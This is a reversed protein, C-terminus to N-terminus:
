AGKKSLIQTLFEGHKQSNHPTYKAYVSLTIASNKHGLMFSVWLIPEGKSIFWSAFSHRTNYIRRHAINLNKLLNKYEFNLHSLQFNFIMGGRKNKFIFDEDKAGRKQKEEKIFQALTPLLDIKRTSSPTKPTSLGNVYSVAKDINITNRELDFDGFKLALIEGTRAGCLLAIKLYLGIDGGAQLLEVIESESFPKLEEKDSVSYKKQFVPNKNINGNEVALNLVRKLEKILTKITEKKYGSNELFEYFALVDEKTISEIPKDMFFSSITNYSSRMAKKTSPKLGSSQRMIFKTLEKIQSSKEDRFNSYFNKFNKNGEIIYIQILKEANEELFAKCGDKLTTSFRLRKFSSHHESNNKKFESLSVGQIQSFMDLGKASSMKAKSRRLHGIYNRDIDLDFYFVGNREYLKVNKLM